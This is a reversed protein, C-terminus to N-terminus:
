DGGINSGTLMTPKFSSLGRVVLFCSDRVEHLCAVVAELGCFDPDVPEDEFKLEVDEDDDEDEEDVESPKLPNSILIKKSSEVVFESSELSSTKGLM